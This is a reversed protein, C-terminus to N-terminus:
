DLKTKKKPEDLGDIKEPEITRKHVEIIELEPSAEDGFIVIDSDDQEHGNKGNAEPEIEMKEVKPKPVLKEEHKLSVGELEENHILWITCVNEM